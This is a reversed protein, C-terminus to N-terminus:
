RWYLPAGVNCTKRDRAQLLAVISRWLQWSDSLGPKVDVHFLGKALFLEAQGPPMARSLASSETYPIIDDDLGHILILKATLLSLDKNSLNLARIEQRVEKPLHSILLSVRSPDRNAIFDYFHKGEPGLKVALDEVGEKPEELKREAMLRFIQRDEPDSLRDINSLVFVWKGYENPNRYQWHGNERFYGTTSFTLVRTLDYYGGVGMVFCVRNRIEPSLAALLAPGVAYSFACIGAKGQPTADPLAGLQLFSDIVERINGSGVQLKRIGELDPVLVTFRGRALTNAFAVLRPDDKGKEAAGPVLLIGARTESGPRYLDGSYTRGKVRCTVSTRTPAPTVRKFPSDKEGAAIDSLLLAAELGRGLNSRWLFVILIAATLIFFVTLFKGSKLTKWNKV